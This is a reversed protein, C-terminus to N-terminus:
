AFLDGDRGELVRVGLPCRGVRNDRCAWLASRPTNMPRRVAGARDLGPLDGAAGPRLGDLVLNLMRAAQARQDPAGAVVLVGALTAAVDAAGVDSRLDGAAGGADLFLSVIAILQARMRGHEIRGSSMLARLTDIM